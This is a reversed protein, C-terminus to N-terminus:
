GSSNLDIIFRIEHRWVETRTRRITYEIESRVDSRGHIQM